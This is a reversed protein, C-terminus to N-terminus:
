LNMRFVRGPLHRRGNSTMVGPHGDANPLSELGHNRACWFPEFAKRTAEWIAPIGGCRALLAVGAKMAELQKHTATSRTKSDTADPFGADDATECWRGLVLYVITGISASRTSQESAQLGELAKAIFKCQFTPDEGEWEVIRKGLGRELGSEFARQTGNLRIWQWTQYGFWEEIEEDIPGM